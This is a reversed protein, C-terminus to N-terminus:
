SGPADALLDQRIVGPSTLELTLTMEGPATLHLPDKLPVGCLLYRGRIDSTHTTEVWGGPVAVTTARWAVQIPVGALPIGDATSEVFGVIGASDPSPQCGALKPIALTVRVDSDAQLFVPRTIPLLDLSDTFSHFFAIVHHGPPLSDLRFRGFRDTTTAKTYDDALFVTAGALPEEDVSDYVIGEVAATRPGTSSAISPVFGLEGGQERIRLGDQRAKLEPDWVPVTGPPPPVPPGWSPMRLWWRSVVWAGNNLRAFDVRGGFRNRPIGDRPVLDRTYRFDLYRLESTKRDVWLTGDIDPPGSQDLPQFALGVLGKMAQHHAEIARFCHGSLFASSLLAQADLGYFSVNDGEERVFGQTALDQPSVSWFPREGYVSSLRRDGTELKGSVVDLTRTWLVDQFPVYEEKEAWSVIELAKRAADWLTLTATGLSRSIRCRNKATVTLGELNIAQVPVAFRYALTEGQALVLTDSASSAYGIREARLTYRGPMPASLIFRGGDNSLAAARVVGASDVLQIFAERIAAGTARNVIHGLVRQGPIQATLEGWPAGLVLAVWVLM